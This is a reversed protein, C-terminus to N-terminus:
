KAQDDVKFDFHVDGADVNTVTVTVGYTEGGDKLECRLTSGPTGKLNDPCTVSDPKRGVKETLQDRLKSAFLNKDVTEVMDFQVDDGKVSTATVNVNYDQGKIKMACNLQAGVEGKLGDPCTVSDPKNGAADTMKSTIQKAIDDKSVMRPGSSCAAAAILTGTIASAFFLTRSVPHFM